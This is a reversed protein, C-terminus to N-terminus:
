EIMFSIYINGSYNGEPSALSDGVTLVAGVNLYTKAPSGQQISFPMVPSSAGLTVLMSGGNSGILKTTGGLISVITGAPAEIELVLQSYTLGFNLPIVTGSSSRSGDAEISLTGGSKGQAFFGFRLPQVVNVKFAEALTDQRIFTQVQGFGKSLLLLFAFMLIAKPSNFRNM